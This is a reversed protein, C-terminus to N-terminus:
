PSIFFDGGLPRLLEGHTTRTLPSSILTFPYTEGLTPTLFASFRIIRSSLQLLGYQHGFGKLSLRSAKSAQFWRCSPQLGMLFVNGVFSSFKEFFPIKVQIVMLIRKKLFDQVLV